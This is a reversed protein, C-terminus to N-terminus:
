LEREMTDRIDQLCDKYGECYDVNKTDNKIKCILHDQNVKRILHNFDIKNNEDKRRDGLLGRIIFLMGVNIIVGCLIMYNM